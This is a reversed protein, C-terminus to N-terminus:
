GAPATPSRLSTNWNEPRSPTLKNTWHADFSLLLRRPAEVALVDGTILDFGPVGAVYGSGVELTSTLVSDYMWSRPVDTETLADWLRQATARIVINFVTSQPTTATQVSTEQALHTRLDLLAQAGTATFRNLWRAHMEQLPVPNLHHRRHRGDRVVTVLGADALIGLHKAVGFRTM